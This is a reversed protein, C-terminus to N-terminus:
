RTQWSIIKNKQNKLVAGFIIIQNSRLTKLDNEPESNM